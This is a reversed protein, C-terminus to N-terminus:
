GRHGSAPYRLELNPTGPFPPDDPSGLSCNERLPTLWELTRSPARERERERQGQGLLGHAMGFLEEFAGGTGLM